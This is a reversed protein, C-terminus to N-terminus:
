PKVQTAQAVADRFAQAEPGKWNPNAFLFGEVCRLLDPAAAILIANANSNEGRHNDYISCVYDHDPCCERNVIGVTHCDPEGCNCPELNWPSPTYEAESM